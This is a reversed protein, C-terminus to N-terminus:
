EPTVVVYDHATLWQHFEWATHRCNTRCISRIREYPESGSESGDLEAQVPCAIDKCYTRRRYERYGEPIM